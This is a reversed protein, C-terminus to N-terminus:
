TVFSFKHIRVSTSGILINQIFFSYFIHKLGFSIYFFTRIEINAVSETVSQWMHLDIYLLFRRHPFFANLSMLSITHYKIELNIPLYNEFVDKNSFCVSATLNQTWNFIRLVFLLDPVFKHSPLDIFKSHLTRHQFM